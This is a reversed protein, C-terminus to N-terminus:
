CESIGRLSVAVRATLHQLHKKRAHSIAFNGKGEKLGSLFM